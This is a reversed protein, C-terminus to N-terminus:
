KTRGGRRQGTVGFLDWVNLRPVAPMNTSQPGLLGAIDGRLQDAPGVPAPMNYTKWPSRQPPPASGSSQPPAMPTQPPGPPLGQSRRYPELDKWVNPDIEGEGWTEVPPFDQMMPNPESPPMRPMPGASQSMLRALDLDSAPPRPAPLEMDPGGAWDGGDPGGAWGGEQYGRPAIRASHSGVIREGPLPPGIPPDGRRDEVNMSAPVRRIVRDAFGENPSSPKPWQRKLMEIGRERM